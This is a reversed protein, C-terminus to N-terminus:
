RMNCLLTNIKKGPPNVRHYDNLNTRLTRPLPIILNKAGKHNPPATHGTRAQSKQAFVNHAIEPGFM